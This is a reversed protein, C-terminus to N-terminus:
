VEVTEGDLDILALHQYDPGAEIEETRAPTGPLKPISIVQLINQTTAVAGDKKIEGTFEGLKCIADHANGFLQPLSGLRKVDAGPNSRVQEITEKQVDYLWWLEKQASRQSAVDVNQDAAILAPRLYTDRYQCVRSASLGYKEGIEAPAKRSIIDRQFEALRPPSMQAIIGRKPAPKEMRELVQRKLASISPRKSM